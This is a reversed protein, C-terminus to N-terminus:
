GMDSCTITGGDQGSPTLELTMTIERAPWGGCDKVILGGDIELMLPAYGPANITVVKVGSVVLDVESSCGGWDIGGAHAGGVVPAGTSADQRTLHVNPAQFQDDCHQECAGLSLAM